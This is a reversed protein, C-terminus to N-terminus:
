RALSPPARPRLIRDARFAPSASAIEVPRGLICVAPPAIHIHAAPGNLSGHEFQSFECVRTTVRSHTHWPSYVVLTIALLAFALLACVVAKGRLPLRAGSHIRKLM